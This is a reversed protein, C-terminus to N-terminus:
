EINYLLAALRHSNLMVQSNEVIDNYQEHNVSPLKPSTKHIM